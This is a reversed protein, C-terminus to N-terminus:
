LICVINESLSYDDFLLRFWSNAVLDTIAVLLSVSFKTITPVRFGIKGGPIEM